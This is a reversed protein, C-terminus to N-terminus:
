CAAVLKSAGVMRRDISVARVSDLGLSPAFRWSPTAAHRRKQPGVTKKQWSVWIGGGKAMAQQARPLQTELEAM